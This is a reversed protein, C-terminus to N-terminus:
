WLVRSTIFNCTGSVIFIVIFNRLSIPLFVFSHVSMVILKCVWLYHSALHQACRVHKTARTSTNMWASMLFTSCVWCAGRITWAWFIYVNDQTWFVVFWNPFRNKLFPFSAALQSLLHFHKGVTQPVQTWGRCGESYFSLLSLMLPGESRWMHALIHMHAYTSVCGCILLYFYLIQSFDPLCVLIYSPLM